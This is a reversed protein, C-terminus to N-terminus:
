IIKEYKTIWNVTQSNTGTVNVLLDGSSCTFSLNTPILGLQKDLQSNVFEVNASGSFNTVIVERKWAGWISNSCTASVYVEVVTTYGQPISITAATITSDTTTLSTTTLRKATWIGNGSSDSVMVYENQAGNTMRFGTTSVTGIVQLKYSPSATGIGISQTNVKAYFLNDDTSGKINFDSSPSSLNNIITSGQEVVLARNISAGFTDIVVGSNTGGGGFPGTMYIYAGFNNGATSIQSDFYFGYNSCQSIQPNNQVYLGYNFLSSNNFQIYSGYNTANGTFNFYNGYVNGFGVSSELMFAYTNLGAVDGDRLDAYYGRTQEGGNIKISSGYTQTAGLLTINLGYKTSNPTENTAKFNYTTASPQTGFIDSKFGISELDTDTILSYFGTSVSGLQLNSIYGTKSRVISDDYLSFGINSTNPNVGGTISHIVGYVGSTGPNQQIYIGYSSTAGDGTNIRIGYDSTGNDTSVFIGTNSASAATSQIELKSNYNTTTFGILLDKQIKQTFNGFTNSQDTYAISSNLQSKNVITIKSSTHALINSDSVVNSGLTHIHDQRAFANATGEINSTGVSSPIGTALPDAGNPLHRSSHSEVTVGNVQLVGSISNSGMLLNGTMSRAGDVLLYQTHDDDSLGLLNGHDSTANVGSSKFGLVPRIDEIQLIGGNGQKVYISAISSVGDEFYTPPNPLPADEADVLNQYQVQGIVLLYKEDVSEGVVYLTHKTFYSASMTILGGSNDDYQETVSNTTSVIWGGSGDRYFQEFSITAGGSPTFNAESFWYSGASVDISQSGVAQTVLSGSEYIAGIAKRNFLNLKNDAHKVDVRTNDIFLVQGNYTVVRGLVINNEISPLASSSTLIDNENIYVYRSSNDPLQFLSTSWDIRKHSDNTTELYGYGSTISVTLGLSISIEGGSIVGMPGTEFVLSTLDTTTGDAFTVSAKRTINLEGDLRDIFQWYVDSSNTTITTHDYLSGQFFGRSFPQEIKLSNVVDDEIVVASFNFISATGINPILLGTEYGKIDTSSVVLKGGDEVYLAVDDGAGELSAVTIDLQAGTNYVCAAMSGTSGPFCYFNEINAFATFGSDQSDICVAQSFTGNFDVYEGYFITEQTQSLVKIGVDCNYFSLKHVQSFDGSDDAIIGAYGSGPTGVDNISLFSIENAIGMKFLDHNSASAIIQTTQINSGVISVYPRNSLDILNERFVGPGVEIVYRNTESSDTISSVADGISSFDGGKKAVVIRKQDKNVVYISATSSIITKSYNDTGQIKGIAKTNDIQVDTTNNEFNLAIADISPIGLDNPAYIAKSWRQFNVGTLRLFSGNEVQFGVGAASGVSRTLLCGNVIFGCGTADAKAFILGSTNTIGGNTSTVNRLQMRGIGNGANTAQFGITFPYGGYKVNSCQMICNGTSTTGVVRAHTYNTGFRVNEVYAIANTQPTTPSSYVVAAVGTGTCGQIQVDFIASQDSLTILTQNSFTAEIITSISSEGVVAVYSPITFPEEYYLGSRVKVTYVNSATADNISDVATKISSFEAGDKAVLLTKSDGASFINGNVYIDSGSATLLTPNAETGLNLKHIAIADNNSSITVGGVYVSGSAVHLSRWEFSSTGLDYTANALPIIHQAKTTNNVSFTGSGNISIDSATLTIYTTNVSFTGGSVEFDSLSDFVLKYDSASGSITTNQSLTGGLIVLDEELSLGNGVSLFFPAIAVWNNGTSQIQLSEYQILSKIASGDILQSATAFVTVQNSGSNKIVYLRGVNTSDSIPLTVSFTGSCDVYYDESTVIYDSTKQTYPFSVGGLSILGKRTVFENAM